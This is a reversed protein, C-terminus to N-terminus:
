NDVAPLVVVLRVGKTYDGPVRDEVKVRGGFGEVITKVLYLGLGHGTVKRDGNKFRQFLQEKLDDPIGPGNDTVSTEYYKRGKEIASDVNIWVTVPGHSHKVSNGILNTFVEKLLPNAHVYCYLPSEYKVEVDRYPVKPYNRVADAIIDGLDIVELRSSETKLQRLIKVNKILETCQHLAELTKSLMGPVQSNDPKQQRIENVAIETYGIAVQNLNSIDHAMLDLYMDALSKERELAEESQKMPTIDLVTSVVGQYNGHEDILPTSAIAAWMDSSYKRKIRAIYTEKVGKRWRELSNKVSGRDDEAVFDYVTHCLMEERLYGMMSLMKKNVFVIVGDHNLVVVGEEAMNMIFQDADEKDFRFEECSQSM